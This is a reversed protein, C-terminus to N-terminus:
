VHARGIQALLTGTEAAACNAPMSGSMMRLVAGTGITTEIADLLANRGPVSVQLTM